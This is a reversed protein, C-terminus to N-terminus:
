NSFKTLLAEASEKEPLDNAVIIELITLAEEVRRLNILTNAKSFLVEGNETDKTLVIQYEELAEDYNKMDYSLIHGKQVHAKIVLESHAELEKEMHGEAVNTMQTEDFVIINNLASLAEDHKNSLAYLTTLTMYALPTRKDTSYTEVFSLLSSEALNYKTTDDNEQWENYYSLATSYDSLVSWNYVNPHNAKVKAYEARAGEFDKDSEMTEALLYQGIAAKETNPTSQSAIKRYHEKALEKRNIRNLWDGMQFSIDESYSSNPYEEVLKRGEIVANELDDNWLYHQVIRYQVHNAYTSDHSFTNLFERMKPLARNDKLHLYQLILYYSAGEKWYGNPDEQLYDEYHQKAKEIKDDFSEVRGLFYSAEKGEKTNKYFQRLTKYEKKANKYDRNKYKLFGLRHHAKRALTSGLNQTQQRLKTTDNQIRIFFLSDQATFAVQAKVESSINIVLIVILLFYTLAKLYNM